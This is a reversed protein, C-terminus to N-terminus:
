RVRTRVATVGRGSKSKKNFEELSSGLPVRKIEPTDTIDLDAVAGEARPPVGGDAYIKGRILLAGIRELATPLDEAKFSLHWGMVMTSKGESWWYRECIFSEWGKEHELFFKLVEVWKYKDVWRCLFTASQENHWLKVVKLCGLADIAKGARRVARELDMRPTM